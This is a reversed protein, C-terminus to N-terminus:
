AFLSPRPHLDFGPIIPIHRPALFICISGRLTRAWTNILKSYENFTSYFRTGSATRQKGASLSVRHFEDCLYRCCKESGIWKKGYSSLAGGTANRLSRPATIRTAQDLPRKMASFWDWDWPLRWEVRASDSGSNPNFTWWFVTTVHRQRRQMQCTCNKHLLASITNSNAAPLSSVIPLAAAQHPKRTSISFWYIIEWNRPLGRIFSYLRQWEPSFDRGAGRERSGAAM